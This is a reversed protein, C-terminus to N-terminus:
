LEENSRTKAMIVYAPQELTRSFIRALYEGLIGLSLLQAGSFVIIISALFTFGPVSEGLVYLGIVYALICGGLLSISLGLLSAFRLPATSYGTFVLMTQNFLRGFNYNSRGVERRAQQVQVSTFATTGWSLLVDFLVQPSQYDTFAERLRTRFARFANINRIKSVGMAKALVKKTISSTLNRWLSHPMKQPLGYVVDFGENLRLLLQPIEEPPHQLDDDMTIVIEYRAERVGCLLANHQGFNRMLQIGRVWDYDTALQSIVQWSQDSSGDNVFIVESQRAVTTLVPELRTVLAVLTPSGNYVPVVVSVSPKGGSEM